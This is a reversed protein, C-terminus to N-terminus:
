LLSSSSSPIDDHLLVLLSVELLYSKEGKKVCANEVEQLFADLFVNGYRFQLHKHESETGLTLSYGSQGKRRISRESGREIMSRKKTVIENSRGGRNQETYKDKKEHEQDSETAIPITFM